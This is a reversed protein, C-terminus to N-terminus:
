DSRPGVRERSPPPGVPPRECLVFFDARVARYDYDRDGHRLIVHYGRVPADLYEVGPRPCGLSGDSWVTEEARVVEFGERSAGTREALDDQVADLIEEPAEGRVATERDEPVREPGRFRAGGGGSAGVPEGCVVGRGGGVHVTYLTRAVQLWVRYGPTVVAAYVEGDRPCGLGRDPWQVSETRRVRIQAADLGAEEALLVKAVRIAEERSDSSGQLTGPAVLVLALCLVWPM